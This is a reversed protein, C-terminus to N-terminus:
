GLRWSGVGLSRERSREAQSNTPPLQSSVQTLVDPPLRGAGDPIDRQRAAPVSRHDGRKRRGDLEAQQVRQSCGRARRVVPQRGPYESKGLHTNMSAIGWAPFPGNARNSFARPLGTAPDFTLNINDVVDKAQTGRFWVFDSALATTAGFQHQFGISTQFTRP